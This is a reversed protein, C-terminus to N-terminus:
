ESQLEIDGESLSDQVAYEFCGWQRSDSEM